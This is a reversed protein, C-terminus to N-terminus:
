DTTAVRSEIRRDPIIWIAAVALYCAVSVWTRGLLATPIAIANLGGSAITKWDWGLARALRSNEGGNCAILARALVYWAVALCIMVMGYLATPLPAYHSEGMWATAFPLLSLFFMLILNAWLVRGDVREVAQLMHHHNNWILGINVFSLVYALFFPWHATLAAFDEGQPVKLELVLITILIAIVGDSFAELRGKDM